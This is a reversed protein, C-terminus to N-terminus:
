NGGIFRVRIVDGSTAATPVVSGAEELKGMYRGVVKRRDAAANQVDTQSPTAGVTSAAYAKVRGATSSAPMVLATPQITGEAVLYVIGSDLVSVTTDTAAAAKVAVVFPGTASTTALKWTNGGTDRELVVGKTIANADKIDAYIYSFPEYDGATTSDAM